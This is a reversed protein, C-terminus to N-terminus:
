QKEEEQQKSNEKRFLVPRKEQKQLYTEFRHVGFAFREQQFLALLQSQHAQIAALATPNSHIEINFVKPASQFERITIQTGYFLSQPNELFLTTETEQSSHLLIMSAAMKEFLAEIDAPIITSVGPISAGGEASTLTNTTLTSCPAAQCEQEKDEEEMLSFLGRDKPRHDVADVRLCERFKRESAKNPKPNESRQHERSASRELLQQTTITM